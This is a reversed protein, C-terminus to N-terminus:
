DGFSIGIGKATHILNHSLEVKNYQNIVKELSIQSLESNKHIAMTGFKKEKVLEFAKVGLETALIRDFAIPSGGRQLHGLITERVDAEFNIEKLKAAIKRAISGQIIKGDGDKFHAGEAVVINAYGRGYTSYKSTLKKVVKEMNFPIEPILCVNAGGAIAAHLAIWGADRGMVELILVRNHSRATTILKDVAETAVQAATQFGFSYDTIALDNNITKPIGVINVGKQYLKLSIKHSENGGIHIVADFGFVKLNYILKDSVDENKISGDKQVVPYNYPNRTNNTTLITGGQPHIGEVRKETLRIIELPESLIGDFGNISGIIEWDSEQHARKVIARIVANMGPCDGGSNVILIRKKM